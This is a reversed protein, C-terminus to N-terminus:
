TLAAKRANSHERAIQALDDAFGGVVKEWSVAEATTRAQAGLSRALAPELALRVSARVLAEADGSPVTLGNIGDSVYREAAAYHYGAFALGSALAETVVNGFTESESAHIYIDGSALHAALQSRELFGTFRIWPHASSLKARLPGDGVLVFRADPRAARIAEYCRLLVEFNKEPAIRSTHVVVPTDPGAGWSARLVADRKGPHFLRTDVGRSLLRLNRFGEAALERNLSDTPSFTALTRNHFDRMHLMVLNRFLGVGYHGTYHQFHTHYSSTLPLGLTRAAYAAMSGLPGETVVHVLDPKRSRLERFIAPLDPAGWRLGPYGPIPFGRVTVERVGPFQGPTEARGQHPRIVTVEHGLAALGSSLQGWTMAVGNIEPPFTETAVTLRM